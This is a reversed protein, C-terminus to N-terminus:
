VPIRDLLHSVVAGPMAEGFLHGQVEDCGLERLFRLQGDTEVGEAVVRLGLTHSMTIIASAIAKSFADEPIHRVFFHDIKLTDVPLHKLLSLSSYGTGFDDIAIRVGLARLTRLVGASHEMSQLVSETLELEMPAEGPQFHLEKRTSQMTEVLHDHQIQRASVNVAIRPPQRGEDIWLRAQLLSQRIVWAGVEAMLDSQEAIPIFRDPLILGREPHNWRLLAEVGALRGTRLDIQPQYYLSLEGRTLARRLDHEVALHEVARATMEPAYFEYRHRGREKARYMATDAARMLDRPTVADDPYLAIGISASTVVERQELVAPSDLVALLSDARHVVDEMHVVGEFALVFEDGGLRALVDETRVARALRHAVEKLLEDGAAHGLTDNSRKFQDLDLFLLAVKKSHRKARELAKDLNEVFLLRNPLGTLVDHRALRSLQEEAHQRSTIDRVFAQLRRGPLVKASIEVPVYSGDQRRLTWEAIQMGGKSLQGISEKLRDSDHPPILDRINMRLLEARTFGLLQCGARNVDTYNGDLNSVFVGDAAHEFLDRFRQEGRRLRDHMVSFAVGIGVFVVIPVVQRLLGAEYPAVFLWWGASATVVTAVIGAWFGGLWSAVFVGSSLPLLVRPELLPWLLWELAIAVFPSLFALIQRTFPSLRGGAHNHM